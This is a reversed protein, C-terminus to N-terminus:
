RLKSLKMPIFIFQYIQLTRPNLMIGFIKMEESIKIRLEKAHEVVSDVVSGAGTNCSFGL